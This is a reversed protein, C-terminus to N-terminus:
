EVVASIWEDGSDEGFDLIELEGSHQVGLRRCIEALARWRVFYEKGLSEEFYDELELETLREWGFEGAVIREALNSLHVDKTGPQLQCYIKTSTVSAPLARLLSDIFPYSFDRLKENIIKLSKLATFSPLYVQLGLIEGTIELSQLTHKLLKFASLLVPLSTCTHHVNLSLSTLTHSSSAIISRTFLPFNFFPGLSLSSLQFSVSPTVSPTTLFDFREFATNLSLSKLEAGKLNASAIWEGTGDVAWRAGDLVMTQVGRLGELVRSIDKSWCGTGWQQSQYLVVNLRQTRFRGLAPSDLVRRVCGDSVISLVKWLLPQGFRAWERCVLCARHLPSLAETFSRIDHLHHETPAHILQLIRLITEPPLSHITAM